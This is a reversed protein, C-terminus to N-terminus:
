MMSREKDKHLEKTRASLREKTGVACRRDRRACARDLGATASAERRARASGPRAKVTGLVARPDLLDPSQIM